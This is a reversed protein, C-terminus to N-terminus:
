WWWEQKQQKKEEYKGKYSLTWTYFNEVTYFLGDSAYKFCYSACCGDEVNVICELTHLLM